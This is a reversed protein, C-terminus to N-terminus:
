RSKALVAAREYLYSARHAAYRELLKGALEVAQDRQGERLHADALYYEAVMEEASEPLAFTKAQVFYTRARKPESLTEAAIRGALMAAGWQLQGSAQSSRYTTEMLRLIQGYGEFDTPQGPQMLHYLLGVGARFAAVPSATEQGPLETREACDLLPVFQAAVTWLRECQYVCFRQDDAGSPGISPYIMNLVDVAQRSKAHKLPVKISNAPAKLSGQGGILYLKYYALASRPAPPPTVPQRDQPGAQGPPDAPSGAVDGTKEPQTGDPGTRPQATARRDYEPPARRRSPRIPRQPRRWEQMEWDWDVDECGALAALMALGIARCPLGFRHPVRRDAM